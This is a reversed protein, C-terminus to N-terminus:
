IIKMVKTNVFSFLGSSDLVNHCKRMNAQGKVLRWFDFHNALSEVGTEKRKWM